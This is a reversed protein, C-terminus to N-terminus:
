RTKKRTIRATIEMRAIAVIAYLLPFAILFITLVWAATFKGLLYLGLLSLTIGVALLFPWYSLLGHPTQPEPM